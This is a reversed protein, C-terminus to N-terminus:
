SFEFLHIFGKVKNVSVIEAVILCYVFTFDTFIAVTM